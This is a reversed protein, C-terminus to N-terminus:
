KHSKAKLRIQEEAPMKILKNHAGDVTDTLNVLTVLRYLNQARGPGLTRRIIYFELVDDIGVFLDVPM